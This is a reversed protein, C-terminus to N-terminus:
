EMELGMDLAKVSHTLAGSSIYDVGTEAVSRVTALIVGGSAESLIRGGIMGVAKKLMNVDMNDLLVADVDLPLIEELQELTDVEVEIGLLHSARERARRVAEAVSGALAIHNDKILIADDLGFRHNHGGGARVADKQLARLGPVTKRTCTIKAQTGNVAAVYKATTSAIGSLHSLFNLATREAALLAHASGTATLVADGPKVSDGDRRHFSLAIAPDTLFFAMDAAGTGALIGEEQARIIAKATMDPPIVADCTADRGHGIDELLARRVIDEIILRSTMQPVGTVPM